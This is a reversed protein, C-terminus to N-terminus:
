KRQMPLSISPCQSPEENNFIIKEYRGSKKLYSPWSKVWDEVNASTDLSIRNEWAGNAALTCLKNRTDSESNTKFATKFDQQMM